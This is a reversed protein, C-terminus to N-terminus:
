LWAEFELPGLVMSFNGKHSYDGRICFDITALHVPSDSLARPDCIYNPCAQALGVGTLQICWNGQIIIYNGALWYVKFVVLTLALLYVSIGCSVYITNENRSFFRFPPALTLAPSTVAPAGTPVMNDGAGAGFPYFPDAFYLHLVSHSYTFATVHADFGNILLKCRANYFSQLFLTCLVLPVCSDCYLLVFM